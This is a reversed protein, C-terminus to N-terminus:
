APDVTFSRSPEGQQYLQWMTTYAGEIRRTFRRTDFLPYTERNRALREKLSACYAPERAIKLALAEYDPLSDTVLDPLGVARNLSAAVRGAFTAGLCTLVPLGAWLADSATTHACCPLTDLFIDAQRQRALHEALALRPAFVLRDPVIGRREAAVRLNRTATENEDLLWLVSGEVASLLRMWIDFVEPVIKYSNNFSSFVFGREPLHLEDRSPIRDAIRRAADNVQYSDPLAVIKESYFAAHAPPVITPDAILYDIYSAAMTGPYGLFGVQIPAARQAFIAPRSFETFGKLDVAIDIELERLTAAIEDDRRSSVDLFRDFAGRLRTRMADDGARDISVATTEFRGRDHAEFLGAALYATAHNHFDASVYALRIREHRYREGRWLPQPSAPYRQQVYLEACRKQDTLSPSIVV